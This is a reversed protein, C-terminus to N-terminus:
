RSHISVFIKKKGRAEPWGTFDVDAQHEERHRAIILKNPDDGSGTKFIKVRGKQNKEKTEDIDVIRLRARYLGNRLYMLKISQVFGIAKGTDRDLVETKIPNSDLLVKIM